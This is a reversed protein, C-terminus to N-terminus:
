YQSYYYTLVFVLIGFVGMFFILGDIPGTASSALFKPVLRFRKKLPFLYEVGPKNLGDLILHSAYAATIILPFLIHYQRLFLVSLVFVGVVALVSHFFGRHHFGGRFGHLIGGGLHHIKADDADIDPLLAAGAGAIVFLIAKEDAYGLLAALWAMNAGIIAHTKGSM